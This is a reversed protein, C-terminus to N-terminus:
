EIAIHSKNEVQKTAKPLTIHLEGNDYKAKVDKETVGNGVYFSRSMRGHYREQRILHGKKDKEEDNKKNDATITLYGNTLDLKIDDKNFGPMSVNMEYDKDTEKVDCLLANSNREDFLDDFLDFMM